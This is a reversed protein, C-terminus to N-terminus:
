HLLSASRTEKREARGVLEPVDLILGVDGSGLVTCGSVWKIPAFVQGLPKIVTQLEGILRDVVLGARKDGYRVVVVSQRDSERGSTNFLERLRLFPLVEGRLDLYNRQSATDNLEICEEVMELPIVYKSDGAAILFGDIIALTLPLRLRVTSGEGPRSDVEVTGRLDEIVRKVADMGVGRGSINSVQDATSFGPEFILKYIEADSMEDASVILGREIAKEVIKDRNLGRGDDSIEIVISGTEHYADLRVVGESKKGAAARVSPAEIGHDIANRVLHTLPDGIRDVVSKDLETEGGSIVLEIQKGLEHSLDRVVRQFRSFTDGIQVMRLGLAADRVEEVFHASTAVAEQLSRDGSEEARLATVANAIVLEGVLTILHDLKEAEVRLYREGRARSANNQKELAAAVAERPAAKQEVLIQGLPKAKENSVQQGLAVALDARTLAGSKVLIEGLREDGEPLAHILAAWEEPKSRPPLIHVRSSARIFDFAEEIEAKSQESKLDIEFGLYCSEPDMASAAPMAEYLTTVNHLEGLTALYRLIGLPDMGDRLLDVGCRLSIHWAENESRDAAVPLSTLDLYARLGQQLARGMEDMGEAVHGDVAATVLNGIHDRCRLFLSILKADLALRGDRVADLVTEADHTFSVVEDLGFLGGSGKITHAARFVANVLDPDHGGEELALLAREMEELLERSEASYSQLAASIDISM